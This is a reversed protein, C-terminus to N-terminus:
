VSDKGFNERLETLITGLWNTGRWKKPDNRDPNDIGIGIGWICDAPSAEVLMKGETRMLAQLCKFNQAFKEENGRYVIERAVTHWKKTNFNSILRGLAKQTGPYSVNMILKASTADNFVMAKHYMMFQEACNFKIGDITMPAIHWQSFIGGYFFEYKTYRKM